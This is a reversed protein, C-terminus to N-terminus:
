VTKKPEEAAAQKESSGSNDITSDDNDKNSRGLLLVGMAVAAVMWHISSSLVWHTPDPEGQMTGIATSSTSDVAAAGALFSFLLTRYFPVTVATANQLVDLAALVSGLSEKPAVHTVLSRLSLHLVSMCCSIAPCVLLLLVYVNGQLELLTVIAMGMAAYTAARREDGNGM